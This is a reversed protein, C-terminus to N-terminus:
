VIRKTPLTLHTYSVAELAFLRRVLNPHTRSLTVSPGKLGKKVGVVYCKLRTGHEYREGPVQEQPPMIAEIKGLDVLVAKPDRGQQVIGSVIDGERGVFEGFTQDDAAERLRQLIVQKATSAAIRGFGGPTDEFEPGLEGDEEVERAWVTVHGNSRDM